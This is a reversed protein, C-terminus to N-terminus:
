LIQLFNNVLILCFNFPRGARYKYQPMYIGELWKKQVKKALITIFCIGPTHELWIICIRGMKSWGQYMLQFGPDYAVKEHTISYYIYKYAPTHLHSRAM